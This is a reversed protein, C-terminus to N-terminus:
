RFGAAIRTPRISSRFQRVPLPHQAIPAPIARTESPHIRGGIKLEKLATKRPRTWRDPQIHKGASLKALSQRPGSSPLHM